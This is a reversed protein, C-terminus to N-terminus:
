EHKFHKNLVKKVKRSVDNKISEYDLQIEVDAIDNRELSEVIDVEDGIDSIQDKDMHVINGDLLSIKIQMVYDMPIRDLTVQDFIKDFSRDKREIAM